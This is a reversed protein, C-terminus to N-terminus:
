VSENLYRTALIRQHHLEHGAIIFILARLTIPNNNAIGNNDIVDDNFSRFLHLNSRRVLDYEELIDKLQRSNAHSNDAYKNEDFGPLSSEEGRAICLARYAFIRETDIMHQLLEKVSWKGPAYGKEAQADTVNSLMHQIETNQNALIELIDINDPLLSTYQQYYSPIAEQLPPNITQSM